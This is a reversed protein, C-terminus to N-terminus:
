KNWVVPPISIHDSDQDYPKVTDDSKKPNELDEKHEQIVSASPIQFMRMSRYMM